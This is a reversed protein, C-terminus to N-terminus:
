THSPSPGHIPDLAGGLVFALGFVIVLIAAYVALRVPTTM